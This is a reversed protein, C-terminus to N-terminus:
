LGILSSESGTVSREESSHNYLNFLFSKQLSKQRFSYNSFCKNKERRLANVLFLFLM